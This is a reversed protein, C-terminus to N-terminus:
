DEKIISMFYIDYLKRNWSFSKKKIGEKKFGAIKAIKYVRPFDPTETSLRKLQFEDMIFKILNKGERAFKIGWIKKDFIKLLVSAKFTPIINLFGVLAQNNGVEYIINAPSNFYYNMLNYIIPYSRHEDSANLYGEMLHKAIKMTKDKDLQALKFLPSPKRIKEWDLKSIDFQMLDM